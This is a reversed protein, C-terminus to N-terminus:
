AAPRRAAPPSASAAPPCRAPGPIGCTCRTSGTGPRRGRGACGRSRALREHARAEEDPRGPELHVRDVLGVPALVELVAAPDAVAVDGLAAGLDARLVDLDGVVRDDRELLADGVLVVVRDLPGPALEAASAAVASADLQRHQWPSPPRTRDRARGAAPRLRGDSSGAPAGPDLSGIRRPGAPRGLGAVSSAGASRDAARAAEDDPGVARRAAVGPRRRRRRATDVEARGSARSGVPAARVGRDGVVEADLGVVDGLVGPTTRASSSARSSPARSTWRSSSEFSMTSCSAPRQRTLSAFSIGSQAAARVVSARTRGSTRPGRAALGSCRRRRAPSRPSRGRAPRRAPTPRPGDWRTPKRSPPALTVQALQPVAFSGPRFNQEDQPVRRATTHPVHPVPWCPRHGTRRRTRCHRHRRARGAAAAVDACAGDAVAGVCARRHRRSRRM